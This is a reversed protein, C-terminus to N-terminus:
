KEHEFRAEFLELISEELIESYKKQLKELSKETKKADIHMMSELFNRIEVSELLQDMMCLYDSECDDKMLEVAESLIKNDDSISINGEKDIHNEKLHQFFDKM